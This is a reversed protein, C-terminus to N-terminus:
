LLDKVILEFLKKVTEIKKPSVAIQSKNKMVVCPEASEDIMVAFDINIIHKQSVKLFSHECLFSECDKPSLNNIHMESGDALFFICEAGKAEISMIESLKIFVCNGDVTEVYISAPKNENDLTYLLQQLQQLYLEKKQVSIKKIVTLLDDSDIPKQLYTLGSPKIIKLTQDGFATTFIIFPYHKNLSKVVDFGTSNLLEIDLFVLEPQWQNITTIADECDAATAVVEIHSYWTQLLSNLYMRSLPEDEVILATLNKM